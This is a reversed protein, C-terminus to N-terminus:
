VGFGAVNPGTGQCWTALRGHNLMRSPPLTRNPSSVPLVDTDTMVLFFDALMGAASMCHRALFIAM